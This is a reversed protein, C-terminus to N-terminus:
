FSKIRKKMWKDIDDVVEDKTKENLIEHMLFPYIKLMKDESGIDGFFDRSDKEMVLGDKVGHLILTSDTFKDSNERLWRIGSSLAYFLGASIEKEVLPDKQYAEVVRTDSCIGEALENPLYKSVPLNQPVGEILGKNDRTLAGTTIIGRVKGPYKCGFAAVGFGGMSHGLLFLPISDYKRKVLDVLHNIDDVIENFKGYYVRKGESKGHGRHDFRYVGYNNNYFKQAIYDYRGSHECLGHIIIIIGKPKEPIDKKLYLKTGDYSLFFSESTM